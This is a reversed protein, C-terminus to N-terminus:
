VGGIRTVEPDAPPTNNAPAHAIAPTAGPTGSVVLEEKNQDAEVLAAYRRDTVAAEPGAARTAAALARRREAALALAGTGTAVDLSVPATPKGEARTGRSHAIM